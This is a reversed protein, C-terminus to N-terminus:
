INSVINGLYENQTETMQIQLTKNQKPNRYESKGVRTTANSLSDVSFILRAAFAQLECVFTPPITTIVGLRIIKRTKPNSNAVNM